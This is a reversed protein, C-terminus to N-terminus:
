MIWLIIQHTDSVAFSLIKFKVTVSHILIDDDGAENMDLHECVLARIDEVASSDLEAVEIYLVNISWGNVNNENTM